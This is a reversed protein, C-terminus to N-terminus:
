AHYDVTGGIYYKRGVACHRVFSDFTMLEGDADVYFGFKEEYSDKLKWMGDVGTAFDDITCDKIKDLAKMFKNFSNEFYKRKDEVILYEGNNDVGFKIGRTDYCDEIWKLDEDRYKSDSVYDAVSNTFWHDYYDSEEIYDDKDIPEMSVQFIRSHM